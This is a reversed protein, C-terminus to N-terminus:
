VSPLRFITEIEVIVMVNKNYEGSMWSHKQGKHMRWNIPYLLVKKGFIHGPCSDSFDSGYKAPSLFKHIQVAVEKM